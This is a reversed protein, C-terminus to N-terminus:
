AFLASNTTNVLVTVWGGAATNASLVLGYNPVTTGAAPAAQAAARGDASPVLNAGIALAASAIMKTQGIAVVEAEQGSLPKNCLVGIPRDTTAAVAVVKGNADLKVFKGHSSALDAAAVLNTIKLPTPGQVAM